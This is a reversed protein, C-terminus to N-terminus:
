ILIRGEEWLFPLSSINLNKPFDKSFTDKKKNTKEYACVKLWVFPYALFLFSFKKIQSVRQRTTSSKSYPPEVVKQSPKPPPQPIHSQPKNSIWRNKRVLFVRNLVSLVQIFIQILALRRRFNSRNM